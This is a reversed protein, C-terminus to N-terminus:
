RKPEPRVVRIGIKRAAVEADEEKLVFYVETTAGNPDSRTALKNKGDSPSYTRTSIIGRRNSRWDGVGDVVEHGTAVATLIDDAIVDVTIPELFVKPSGRNATGPM